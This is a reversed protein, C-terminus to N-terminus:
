PKAGARELMEGLVRDSDFVTEALDRAAAAHAGYDSLIREAQSRAEALDTFTLLGEGRAIDPSVGTDQVLVPRGSALYRVSRDSIWGTRAASYVGQVPSLEAGSGGVYRRFSAPDGAVADPDVLSWGGSLLADRDAADQPAIDLAIEFRARPALGPLTRLKRFEHHKAPLDTVGDLSVTGSPCRWTSVTTFRVDEGAPEEVVPWEDLVVPPPLPWWDVGDEPVSSSGGRGLNCGVSFFVDHEAISRHLLGDRHWVQTFGPDTDIYVARRPGNVIWDLTAHGSVNVLLEAEVAVERVRTPELGALAREGQLLASRGEFGFDRAVDQFFEPGAPGETRMQEFLYVDFGLRRLGLAYSLPVWAFGGNRPKNALASAVIAISM